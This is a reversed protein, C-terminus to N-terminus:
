FFHGIEFKPYVWGKVPWTDGGPPLIIFSKSIARILPCFLSFSKARFDKRAEDLIQPYHTSPLSPSTGWGPLNQVKECINSIELFASM